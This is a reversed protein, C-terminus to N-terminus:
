NNQQARRMIRRAKIYELAEIVEEKSLHQVLDQEAMIEEIQKGLLDDAKKEAM